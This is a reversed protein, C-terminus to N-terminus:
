LCSQCLIEQCACLIQCQFSHLEFPIANLDAIIQSNIFFDAILQDIVIGILKRSLIILRIM